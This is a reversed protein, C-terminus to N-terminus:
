IEWPRDVIVTECIPCSRYQGGAYPNEGNTGACEWCYVHGCQCEIESYSHWGNECTMEM